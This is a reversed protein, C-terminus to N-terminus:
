NKDNTPKSQQHLEYWSCIRFVSMTAALMASVAYLFLLYGMGSFIVTLVSVANQYAAPWAFHFDLSRAVLAFMLACLQLVIFHVFTSCLEMYPSPQDADTKEALISRFKEDGFSLFMALGGLSFGLLNPLISLPQEWWKEASWFHSTIVLLVLALHLYPSRVLARLGGYSRWYRSFITRIGAYM